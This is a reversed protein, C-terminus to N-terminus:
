HAKGCAKCRVGRPVQMPCSSRSARQREALAAIVPSVSRKESQPEYLRSGTAPVSEPSSAAAEANLTDRIWSSLDGGAAEIWTDKEEQSTRVQVVVRPM